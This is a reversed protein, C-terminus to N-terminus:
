VGPQQPFSPHFQPGCAAGWVKGPEGAVTGLKQKQLFYHPVGALGLRCQFPQELQGTKTLLVFAQVQELMMTQLHCIGRTAEPKIWYVQGVRGTTGQSLLM